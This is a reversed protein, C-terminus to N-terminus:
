RGFTRLLISFKREVECTWAFDPIRETRKVYRGNLNADILEIQDTM